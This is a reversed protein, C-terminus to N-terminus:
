TIDGLGAVSLLYECLSVKEQQSFADAWITNTRADLPLRQTFNGINFFYPKEEPSEIYSKLDSIFFGLESTKKGFLKQSYLWVYGRPSIEDVKLGKYIKSWDYKTQM